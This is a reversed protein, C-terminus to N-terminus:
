ESKKKYVKPVKDQKEPSDAGMLGTKHRQEIIHNRRALTKNNQKIQKFLSLKSILEEQQKKADKHYHKNTPNDVNM